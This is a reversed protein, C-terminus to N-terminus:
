TRTDLVIAVAKETIDVLQKVEERSMSLPPNLVLTNGLPRLIAGLPRSAMAVRHGTQPPADEGTPQQLDIGVMVGLQRVSRVWPKAKLVALDAAMWDAIQRAHALVGETEFLSLSALAVACALPNGTYTHGHFFQKGEEPLGLFDNYVAESTLTAALPLYGGTIGKALCLFDPEFALQECAFLTGTRGFGVAVEDAILLIDLARARKALTNIFHPSHMKMGAAGQVLPEFIFAALTDAHAELLALGAELAEAEEEQGPHTPAPLTLSEFLLPRFTEHFLDIAGVSVAGITDGHYADKLTAFRTKQTNGRQQQSQYAMKVAIETATSGSDSYFVRRLRAPTCDVLEKALVIAKPHSLGLLTSHSLTQIQQQLAANLVPHDHGHVNTWLSSVADIYRRGETDILWVGEGREIILPDLTMWRQQPTFPHWLVRKDLDARVRTM